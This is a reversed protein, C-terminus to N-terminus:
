DRPSPSTYLLCTNFINVATDAETRHVQMYRKLAKRVNIDMSASDTPYGNVVLFDGIIERLSSDKPSYIDLPKTIETDKEGPMRLPEVNNYFGSSKEVKDRLNKYEAKEVSVAPEYKPPVSDKPKTSSCALGFAVVAPIIFYKLANKM